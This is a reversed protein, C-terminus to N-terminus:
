ANYTKSISEMDYELSKLFACRYDRVFALQLNDKLKLIESLINNESILSVNEVSDMTSYNFRKDFLFVSSKKFVSYFYESFGNVTDQPVDYSTDCRYLSDSIRGSKRKSNVFTM